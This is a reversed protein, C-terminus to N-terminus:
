REHVFIKGGRWSFVKGVFPPYYARWPIEIEVGLPLPSVVCPDENRFLIRGPFFGQLRSLTESANIVLEQNM